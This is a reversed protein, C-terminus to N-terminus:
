LVGATVVEERIEGPVAAVCVAAAVHWLARLALLLDVETRKKVTQKWKTGLHEAEVYRFTDTEQNNFILPTKKGTSVRFCSTGGVAPM